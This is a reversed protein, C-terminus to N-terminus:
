GRASTSPTTYLSAYPDNPRNANKMASVVRDYQEPPLVRVFTMMGQMFRSWNPRLGLNEPKEVLKEMTMMTGEMYADQPFNPVDNANPSIENEQAKMSDAGMDFANLNRYQLDSMRPQRSQQEKMMGMMGADMQPNALAGDGTGQAGAALAVSPVASDSAVKSSPTQAMQTLPMNKMDMGSTDMGKMEGGKMQDMEQGPPLM